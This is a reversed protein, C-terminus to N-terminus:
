VRWPENKKSEAATFQARVPNERDSGWHFPNDHIYERIRNLSEENRIIHEYFSRQWVTTGPTGRNKNIRRASFTKFARVIETLSLREALTPAPKLGARGANETIFIIGHVHNPMVVVADLELNLYHNSLDNWTAYVIEGFEHLRSEGDMVEGFLCERNQTCTTLFYADEGAYDYDQLRISRRNHKTPDYAGPLAGRM